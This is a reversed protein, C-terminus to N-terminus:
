HNHQQHWVFIGADRERAGGGVQYIRQKVIQKDNGVIAGAVLELPGAGSNWSTAGLRLETNGNEANKVVSLSHAPMAVLNPLLDEAKAQSPATLVSIAYTLLATALVKKM